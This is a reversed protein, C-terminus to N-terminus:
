KKAEKPQKAGTAQLYAARILPNKPLTGNANWLQVARESCKWLSAFPRVEVGVRGANKTSQTQM